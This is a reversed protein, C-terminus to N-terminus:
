EEAEFDKLDGDETLERVKLEAKELLDACHRALAQGREFLKIAQDLNSIDGELESVIEEMEKYAQEYSLAEIAKEKAM